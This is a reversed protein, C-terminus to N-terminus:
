TRSRCAATRRRRPGPATLTRMARQARLARVKCWEPDLGKAVSYVVGSLSYRDLVVTVGRELYKLIAARAEWRNASFLLHVAEDSLDTEHRLYADLVRGTATTRDPFRMYKAPIQREALRKTLLRSQTTKGIRDLGEFVILAGRPAPPEDAHMTWQVFAEIREIEDPDM